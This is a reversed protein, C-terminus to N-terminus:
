WDDLYPVHMTEDRFECLECRVGPEGRRIKVLGEGGCRPCKRDPKSPSLVSVLIWLFFAAVVVGFAIYAIWDIIAVALLAAIAALLLWVIHIM